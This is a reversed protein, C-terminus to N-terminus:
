FLFAFIYGVQFTREREDEMVAVAFMQFKLHLYHIYHTLHILEYIYHSLQLFYM